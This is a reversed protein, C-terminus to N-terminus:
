EGIKGEPFNLRGLEGFVRMTEADRALAAAIEGDEGDEGSFYGITRNEGGVCIQSTWCQRAENWSVGIFRSTSSRKAQRNRGIESKLIHRLNSRRNDLLTTSVHEVIYGDKPPLVLHHLYVMARRGDDQREMRVAYGAGNPGSPRPKYTWNLDGYEAAIEDDVLTIIGNTLIIQAM